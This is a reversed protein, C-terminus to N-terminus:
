ESMAEMNKEVVKMTNALEDTPSFEVVQTGDYISPLHGPPVYRLPAGQVGPASM